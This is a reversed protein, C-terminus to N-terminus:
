VNAGAGAEQKVAIEKETEAVRNGLAQLADALDSSLKELQKGRDELLSVAEQLPKEVFVRAGVEVLVKEPSPRAKVFAGAGAPFLADKGQMGELGNITQRALANEEIMGRVQMLQKQTEQAQARLAQLSYVLENLEVM